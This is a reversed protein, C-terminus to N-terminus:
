THKHTHTNIYIHTGDGVGDGGGCSTRRQEAPSTNHRASSSACATTSSCTHSTHHSTQCTIHHSTHCTIHHTVHSAVACTHCTVSSSCATVRKRQSTTARPPRLTSSDMALATAAAPSTHSNHPKCHICATYRINCRQRSTRAHECNSLHLQPQTTASWSTHRTVHSTHRTVHSAHRTVHSMHRTVQSM